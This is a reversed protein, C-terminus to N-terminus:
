ILWSKRSGQVMKKTSKNTAMMPSQPSTTLRELPDKMQGADLSIRCDQVNQLIKQKSAEIVGNRFSIQLTPLVKGSMRRKKAGM